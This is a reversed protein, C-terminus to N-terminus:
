VMARAPQCAVNRKVIAFPATAIKAVNNDGPQAAVSSTPPAVHQTSIHCTEVADHDACTVVSQRKCGIQRSGSHADGHEFAVAADTAARAGLIPNKRPELEVQVGIEVHADSKTRQQVVELQMTVSKGVDFWGHLLRRDEAVARSDDDVLV